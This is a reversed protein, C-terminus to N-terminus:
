PLPKPSDDLTRLYAIVDVLDQTDPVGAFAMKNGPISDKPNHLYAAMMEYSWEGGKNKVADSYAFGPHAGLKRGMVGYLNPGTKGGKQIETGDPAIISHCAKCKKFTNEGVAADGAFAPTWFAAATVALLIFKTM